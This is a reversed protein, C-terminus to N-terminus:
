SRTCLEIGARIPTIEDMLFEFENFDLQTAADCHANKPDPHVEVFINCGLAVAVKAIPIIFEKAGGKKIDFSAVGYKRVAHGVDVFVPHGMRKLIDISRPDVVLDRYGFCSGRETLWIDNDDYQAAAKIKKIVHGIDEPHLFQGKKINIPKGLRAATEVLLTQMCLYAPIQIIDVLEAVLTHLHEPYTFDSLIKVGFNEKLMNFIGLVEDFYPGKPHDPSSRNDKFWSSKYILEFKYTKSMEKLFECTKESTETDELLCNGAIIKMKNDGVM